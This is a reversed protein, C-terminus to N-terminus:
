LTIIMIAVVFDSNQFCFESLLFCLASILAFYVSRRYSTYFLQM